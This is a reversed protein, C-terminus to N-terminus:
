LRKGFVTVSNGTTARATGNYDSDALKLRFRAFSTASRGRDITPVTVTGRWGVRTSNMTVNRLGLDAADVWTLRGQSTTTVKDVRVTVRASVGGPPNASFLLTWVMDSGETERSGGSAYLDVTPLTPSDNDKITVAVDKKGSTITYAANDNIRGTLTGDAEDTSDNITPISVKASGHLPLTVSRTNINAPAVYSGKTAITRFRVVLPSSLASTAAITFDINDGETVTSKAVTLGVEPKAVVPTKAVSVTASSPSGIDYDSSTRLTIKITGDRTNTAKTAVRYSVSGSNPVTVTKNGLDGANKNASGTASVAISATVPTSGTQSITFTADTGTDVNGGSTVKLTPKTPTVPTKSVNVRASSPSGIDYSSSTRIAINIYGDVSSTAKTAVTYTRSGNNPVTVTKNGLDGSNKNISGGATVSISVTVPSGGTASITFSANSGVRINGNSQVKVVPKPPPVVGGTTTVRVAYGNWQNIINRGGPWVPVSSFTTSWRKLNSNYGFPFTKYTSATRFYFRRSTQSADFVAPPTVIVGFNRTVSAEWGDKEYIKAHLDYITDGPPGAQQVLSTRGSDAWTGLPLQTAGVTTNVVASASSGIEYDDSDRIAVTISGASSSTAVTYTASGNAAVSVSKNGLDGANKNASGTASVALLVTVPTGGTANVTFQANGGASVDGNSTITVTPKAVEDGEVEFKQNWAGAFSRMIVINNFSLNNTWDEDTSNYTFDRPFQSEFLDANGYVIKRSTQVADFTKPPVIKITQSSGSFTCLWDDKSWDTMVFNSTSFSATSTTGADAYVGAPMQGASVPADDNVILVRASGNTTSINYGDGALITLTVNGNPDDTKNDITPIAYDVAGNNPITINKTGVDTDAIYSGVQIISAKVTIPVGSPTATLTFEAPDGEDVRGTGKATVTVVPVVAPQDNDLVIVQAVRDVFSREYEDSEILAGIIYGNAEDRGDDETPIDVTTSGHIPVTVTKAGLLANNVYNGAQSFRCKVGLPSSIPPALAVVFSANGGETIIATKPEISAVPLGVENDRVQIAATSESPNVAYEVGSTHVTAVVWGDEEMDTDNDTAVTLETAGQQPITVTKAGTGGSPVFDGIQSVVVAVTTPSSIPDGGPGPKITLTFVASDGEDIPTVKETISVVPADPPPTPPNNDKVKIAATSASPKASYVGQIPSVTATVWGDEEDVADDVTTVTTTIAGGTPITVQRPGTQGPTVYQGIQGIVVSVTLPSTQVPAVSVTFVANQGEEIETKTRTISIEPLQDNDQVTVAAVDSGQKVLYEHGPYCTAYIYGDTEDVTDDLTTVSLEAAGNIPITVQRHGTQGPRAYNGVQSVITSVTVPSSPSPSMTLTFVATGGEKISKIKSKISVEPLPRPEDDDTVQVAATSASPKVVYEDVIPYITVTVWGTEEDTKDDNTPITVTSSGNLGVTVTKAGTTGSRTVNGIQAVVYQVTQPAKLSSTTSVIFVANEGEKVVNAQSVVSFEPLPSPTENDLIAISASGAGSKVTYHVTNNISLTCYGDVNDYTNDVTRVAVKATTDGAPITTSRYGEDANVVAANVETILYEIIVAEEAAETLTLTFMATQGEIIPAGAKVSVEPIAAPEPPNEDDKVVIQGAEKEPNIKYGSGVLLECRLWGDGDYVSDQGTQIEVAAGGIKPLTITKRGLDAAAARGLRQTLNIQVDIEELREQEQDAPSLVFTAKEGETIDAGAVVSLTPPELEDIIEDIIEEAAEEGAFHLQQLARRTAGDAEYPEKIGGFNPPQKKYLGKTFINRTTVM